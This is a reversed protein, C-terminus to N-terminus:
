SAKGQKEFVTLTLEFSVMAREPTSATQLMFGEIRVPTRTHRFEDLLSMLQKFEGHGKVRVKIANWTGLSTGDSKVDAPVPAGKM